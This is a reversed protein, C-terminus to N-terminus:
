LICSDTEYDFYCYREYTLAFRFAATPVMVTLLAGLFYSYILATAVVGYRLPPFPAPPTGVLFYNYVVGIRIQVGSVAFDPTFLGALLLLAAM